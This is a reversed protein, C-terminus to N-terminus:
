GHLTCGLGVGELAFGTCGAGFQACLSAGCSCDMCRGASPIPVCACQRTGLAPNLISLGQQDSGCALNVCDLLRAGDTGSDVTVGGSDAGASGGGSGAAADLGTGAMGGSGGAPRGGLGAGGGWGGNGFGSGGIGGANVGGAGGMGGANVKDSGGGAEGGSSTAAGAAGATGGAGGAAAGTGAPGGDVSQLLEESGACSAASLVLPVLISAVFTRMYTPAALGDLHSM